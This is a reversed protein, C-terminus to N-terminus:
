WPRDCVRAGGGRHVRRHQRTAACSRKHLGDGRACSGDRCLALRETFANVGWCQHPWGVCLRACRLAALAWYSQNKQVLVKPCTLFNLPNDSLVLRSPRPLRLMQSPGRRSARSV